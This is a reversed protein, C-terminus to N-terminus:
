TSRSGSSERGARKPHGRPPHGDARAGKMWIPPHVPLRHAGLKAAVFHRHGPLLPYAASCAPVRLDLPFAWAASGRVRAAGSQLRCDSYRVMCNTSRLQAPATRTRYHDRIPAVGRGARGSPPKGGEGGGSLSDGNAAVCPVCVKEVHMLVGGHLAPM